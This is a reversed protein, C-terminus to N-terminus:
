QCLPLVARCTIMKRVSMGISVLLTTRVKAQITM